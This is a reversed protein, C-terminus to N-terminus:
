ILVIITICIVIGIMLPANFLARVKIGAGESSINQINFERNEAKALWQLCKYFLPLCVIMAIFAIGLLIDLAADMNNNSNSTANPSTLLLSINAMNILAHSIISTTLCGSAINILCFFIGMIFAYCFQNLNMHILGFCLASVFMIKATPAYERFVQFMVGRFCVEELIPTIIGIVAILFIAGANTLSTSSKVVVNETFKQSLLNFFIAAPMSLLTLLITILISKPKIKKFFGKYHVDENCAALLILPVIYNLRNLLMIAGDNSIQLFLCLVPIGISLIAVASFFLGIRNIQKQNNIAM